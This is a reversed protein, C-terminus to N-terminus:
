GAVARHAFPKRESARDANSRAEAFLHHLAGPLATSRLASCPDNTFTTRFGAAQEANNFGELFKFSTRIPRPIRSQSKPTGIGTMMRSHNNKPRQLRVTLADTCILSDGVALGSKKPM